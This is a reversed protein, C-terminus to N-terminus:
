HDLRRKVFFIFIDVLSKSHWILNKILNEKFYNKITSLEEQSLNFISGCSISSFISPVIIHDINQCYTLM